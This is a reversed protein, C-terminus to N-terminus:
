REHLFFMFLESCGNYGLMIINEESVYHNETKHTVATTQIYCIQCYNGLTCKEIDQFKQRLIEQDAFLSQGM